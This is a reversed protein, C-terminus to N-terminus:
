KPWNPGNHQGNLVRTGIWFKPQTLEQSGNLSM